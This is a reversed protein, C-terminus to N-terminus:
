PCWGAHDRYLTFVPHESESEKENDGSFLRIKSHVNPSGRGTARLELDRDLARGVLTESASRKLDDWTPVVAQVSSTSTSMSLSFLNIDSDGGTRSRSRTITATRGSIPAICTATIRFSNSNLNSNSSFAQSNNRSGSLILLAFSFRPTRFLFM